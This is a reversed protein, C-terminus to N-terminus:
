ASCSSTAGGASAPAGFIRQGLQADVRRAPGRDAVLNQHRDDVGRDVLRMGIEGARHRRAEVRDAPRSRRARMAGRDGARDGRMPTNAADRWLGADEARAREVRRLRARLARRERDEPADVPRGLRMRADDVHTEGSRGVRRQM